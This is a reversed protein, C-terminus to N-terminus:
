NMYYLGFYDRMWYYREHKRWGDGTSQAQTYNIKCNPLAEKLKAISDSSRAVPNVGMWLRELKSLQVLTSIDKVNNWCINLDLLTDKSALLPSLDSISNRFLEVYVLNELNELPSIDKINNDVLILIKLKKLGGLVTIDTIGRHGLDLAELNTCYKLSQMDADSLQINGRSDVKTEKTVAYSTEYATSFAVDDTRLAWCGLKVRWVFETNKYTECLEEMQANSLGCDCMDIKKLARFYSINKKFSEFDDIEKNSIDLEEVDTSYTNGLLKTKWIFIVNPFKDAIQRLDGDSISGSQANVMKLNKSLVVVTNLDDKGFDKPVTFETLETDISASGVKIETAFLVDPYKEALRMLDDVTLGCGRLNVNRLNKLQELDSLLADVAVTKGSLDVSDADSMVKVGCIDLEWAVTLNEFKELAKEIETSYRIGKIGVSQLNKFLGLKEIEETKVNELVISTSESDYYNEGIKIDWRVNIGPYAKRLKEVESDDIVRKGRLDVSKLNEFQYLEEAKFLPRNHLDLNETDKKYLFLSVFNYYHLVVAASVAAAVIVAAASILIVKTKTKM